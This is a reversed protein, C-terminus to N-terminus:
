ISYELTKNILKLRAKDKVKVLRTLATRIRSYDIAYGSYLIHICRIIKFALVHSDGGDLLIRQKLERPCKNLYKTRISRMASKNTIKMSM